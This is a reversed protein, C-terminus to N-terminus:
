NNTRVAVQVNKGRKINNGLQGHCMRIHVTKTFNSSIKISIYGVVDM